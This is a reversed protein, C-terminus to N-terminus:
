ESRCCRGGLYDSGDAPGSYRDSVRLYFDFYYFSGGRLGRYSGGLTYFPNSWANPSGPWFGCETCYEDGNAGDGDCYYDKLYWDAVLEWVNGAMDCLGYPSDGAPSVSCVPQTDGDCGSKVALDCTPSENGWPYKRSQAKCNSEGGNHECGGRAGKEWQAETCLEKGAWLCYSEVQFWDVYNIPHNEKGAVQYTACSGTGAPACGGASVCAEYQVATVETRDIEYADLYVKHYPHEGSDCDADNVESGACNNCGMWFTGAPVEVMKAACAFGGTTM